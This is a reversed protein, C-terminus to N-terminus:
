PRVMVKVAREPEEIAVRFAEPADELAYRHSVLSVVDDRRREVLAIAAPFDTSSRSGLVSIEKKTFDRMPIEVRRDCVGVMVITGSVAVLDFAAGALAPSGSAEFVVTAGAGDTLELAQQTLAALDTAVATAGVRLALDLRNQLLDLVLVRAGADTAAIVTGLGIPGAGLVIVVEDAAVRGRQVARHCV